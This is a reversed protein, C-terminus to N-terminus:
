DSTIRLWNATPAGGGGVGSIDDRADTPQLMTAQLGAGATTWGPNSVSYLTGAIDSDAAYATDGRDARTAIVYSCGATPCLTANAVSANAFVTMATGINLPVAFMRNTVSNNGSLRGGNGTATSAVALQTDTTSVAAAAAATAVALNAAAAETHGYAGLEANLDAQSSVALKNASKSNANTARTRYAAFQPIAIAALIGIIAVVIMLEVLTFGERNKIKQAIDVKMIREEYTKKHIIWM